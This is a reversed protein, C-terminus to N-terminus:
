LVAAKEHALRANAVEPVNRCRDCAVTTDDVKVWRLVDIFEQVALVPTRKSSVSKGCLDCIWVTVVVEVIPM